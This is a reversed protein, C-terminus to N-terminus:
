DVKLASYLKTKLLEKQEPTYETGDIVSNIIRETEHNTRFSDGISHLNDKMLQLQSLAHAKVGGMTEITATSLMNRLEDARWAEMRLWIPTEIMYTRM